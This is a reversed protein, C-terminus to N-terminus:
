KPFFKNFNFFSSNIENTISNNVFSNYFHESVRPQRFTEKLTKKFSIKGLNFAKLLHTFPADSLHIKPLSLEYVKFSKLSIIFAALLQLRSPRLIRCNTVRRSSPSPTSIRRPRFLFPPISNRSNRPIRQAALDHLICREHGRSHPACNAFNLLPDTVRSVHLVLFISAM